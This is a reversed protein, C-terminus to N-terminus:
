GDILASRAQKKRVEWDNGRPVWASPDRELNLPRPREEALIEIDEVDRAEAALIGNFLVSKKHVRNDYYFCRLLEGFEPGM